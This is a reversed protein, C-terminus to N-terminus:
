GNKGELDEGKWYREKIIDRTALILRKAQNANKAPKWWKKKNLLAKFEEVVENNKM